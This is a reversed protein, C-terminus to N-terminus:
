PPPNGTEILKYGWTRATVIQFSSQQNRLKTRVRAILKDLSWDSAGWESSEPWVFNIIQDRECIGNLHEKLYTFLTHEQRTFESGNENAKSQIKKVVYDFFLPSFVQWHKKEKSIFGTNVLYSIHALDSALLREGSAIKRIIEQEPTTLSEWLEESQFIIREDNKLTSFLIPIRRNKDTKLYEHLSLLSLRLYQVHGGTLDFLQNRKKDDLKLDYQKEIPAAVINMDVPIAPKMYMIQSFGSSAFPCFVRSSLKELERYSTFIFSMKCHGADRIAVLNDFFEPNVADKLRDFRNLIFVPYYHSQVIHMVAERIGDFTVLIDDIQISVDFSHAIKEKVPRPLSSLGVVDVIRKLTLRWFAFIKREILNNLDVVIIMFKRDLHTPKQALFFRLFNNIGVRKMGVLEVSHHLKIYELFSLLDAQRFGSPYFSEKDHHQM